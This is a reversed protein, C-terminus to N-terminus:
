KHEWKDTINFTDHYGWEDDKRFVRMVKYADSWCGAAVVAWDGDTRIAKHDEDLRNVPISIELVKSYGKDYLWKIECPRDYADQRELPTIYSWKEAAVCFSIALLLITYRM